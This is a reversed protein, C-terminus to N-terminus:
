RSTKKGHKYGKIYGRVFAAHCADLHLCVGNLARYNCKACAREMSSHKRAMSEITEKVM